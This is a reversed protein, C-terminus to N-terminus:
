RQRPLLCLPLMVRVGAVFSGHGLGDDLAREQTWNSREKVKKFSKHKRSLGTDFVVVRVGEGSFGREWLKSAAMVETVSTRRSLLHRAHGAPVADHKQTSAHSEAM